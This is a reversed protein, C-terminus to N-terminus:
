AGRGQRVAELFSQARRTIEDFKQQEVLQKHVLDSGIGLAAAGSRIFAAANGLTVGGVPMLCLQPLPGLLDKIYGPGMAGAPFIKIIPAGAQWATLAETPTLVGPVAIKNYTHCTQIVSVDLTPSLVFDAGQDIAARASPADLVTGAGVIMRDGFHEKAQAIMDLAGPTNLTIEVNSVGGDLLAQLVAPLSAPSVGRLIAVIGGQLLSQYVPLNM